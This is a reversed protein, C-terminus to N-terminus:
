ICSIIGWSIDICLVYMPFHIVERTWGPEFAWPHVGLKLCFFLHICLAGGLFLYQIPKEMRPQSARKSRCGSRIRRSQVLAERRLSFAYSCACMSLYIPIYARISLQNSMYLIPEYIYLIHDGGWSSGLATKCPFFVNFVCKEGIPIQNLKEHWM